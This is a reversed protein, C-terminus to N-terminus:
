KVKTGVGEEIEKREKEHVGGSCNGGGGGGGGEGGGGGGGRGGEGGGGRAALEKGEEPSCKDRVFTVSVQLFFLLLHTLHM